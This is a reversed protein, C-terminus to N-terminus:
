KNMLQITPMAPLIKESPYVVDENIKKNRVRDDFIPSPLGDTVLLHFAVTIVTALLTKNKLQKMNVTLILRVIQSEVAEWSVVRHLGLLIDVKSDPKRCGGLECGQPALCCTIRPYVPLEETKNTAAHGKEGSGLTRPRSINAPLKAREDQLFSIILSLDFWKNLV